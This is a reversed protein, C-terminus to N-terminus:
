YKRRQYPLNRQFTKIYGYACTRVGRYSPRPLKKRNIKDFAKALEALAEATDQGFNFVSRWTDALRDALEKFEESLENLRKTIARLAESPDYM